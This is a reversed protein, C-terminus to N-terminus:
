YDQSALSLPLWATSLCSTIVPPLRTCDCIKGQVCYQALSDLKSVHM